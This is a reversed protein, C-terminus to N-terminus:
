REALATVTEALHRLNALQINQDYGEATPALMEGQGSLFNSMVLSASIFEHRFNREGRSQIVQQMLQGYEGNVYYDEVRAREHWWLDQKTVLTIMWVNKKADQIRPILERLGKLEVARRDKLYEVLFEEESMGAQFYKTDAYGLREFSHYGWSVINIIGGSRGQALSRYLEPWYDERRREQGPPVILHGVFDGHLPHKEAGISETYDSPAVIGKHEPSLLRGLTSKGVGGPGFVVVQLQGHRILYMVKKAMTRLKAQNQYIAIGAKLVATPEVTFM